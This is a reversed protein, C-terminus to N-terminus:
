CKFIGMEVNRVIVVWIELGLLILGFCIVIIRWRPAATPLPTTDLPLLLLSLSLSTSHFHPLAPPLLTHISSAPDLVRATGIM